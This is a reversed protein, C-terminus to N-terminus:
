AMVPLDCVPPPPHRFLNCGPAPRVQPLSVAAAHLLAPATLFLSTCFLFATLGHVDDLLEFGFLRLGERGGTRNRIETRAIREGDVHLNRSAAALAHRSAELALDSTTQGEAAIRRERIGTRSVIWEDTTDVMSQLDRNTLIREPLASGTGAIRSRM